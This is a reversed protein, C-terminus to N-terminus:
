QGGKLFAVIEKEAADNWGVLMHGGNPYGIFRANPIHEATYKAGNFTGYGCDAASIALTPVVIKELDFRPLTSVVRADNLLGARRPSVPLIHSLVTEV